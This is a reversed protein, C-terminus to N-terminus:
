DVEEAGALQVMNLISAELREKEQVLSQLFQLVSM